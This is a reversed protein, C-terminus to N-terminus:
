LVSGGRVHERYVASFSAPDVCATHEYAIRGADVIMVRSAWESGKAIDHTVMVFTHEDRIERLLGDLIDVARPDLGSHPEDLLLVRPRHLIARAIALRQRMGQSFDRVVDYRRHSLEM